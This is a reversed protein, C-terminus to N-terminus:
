LTLVSESVESLLAKATQRALAEVEELLAFGDEDKRALVWGQYLLYVAFAQPQAYALNRLNALVLPGTMRRIDKDTIGQFSIYHKGDVIRETYLAQPRM